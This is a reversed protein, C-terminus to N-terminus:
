DARGRPPKLEDLTQHIAGLSNGVETLGRNLVQNLLLELTRPALRTVKGSEDTPDVPGLFSATKRVESWIEIQTLRAGDDRNKNSKQIRSMKDVENNLYALRADINRLLQVTTNMYDLVAPHPGFMQIGFM